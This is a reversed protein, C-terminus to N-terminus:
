RPVRAGAPAPRAARALVRRAAGATVLTLHSLFTVFVIEEVPLHPALWVGLLADSAGRGYFGQAIAVLDWVVLVVAGALVVLAVRVRAVRPGRGLALGFRLDLTLVGAWSVLLCLLYLGRV